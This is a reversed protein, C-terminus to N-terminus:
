LEQSAFVKEEGTLVMRLSAVLNRFEDTKVGAYISALADAPHENAKTLKGRHKIWGLKPAKTTAWEIMEDKTAHKTGCAALKVESPTLQILRPQAYNARPINGVSGLIGVCSGNSFSGRASQSGTPVEAFIVAAGAIWEHMAVFTESCRRLDDSNKRVTKGAQTETSTLSVALPTVEGTALDYSARAFGFNSLAPDIGCLILTRM